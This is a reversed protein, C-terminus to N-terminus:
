RSSNTGRRAAPLSSQSFGPLHRLFLSVEGDGSPESGMGGPHPGQLGERGRPSSNFGLHFPPVADLGLPSVVSARWCAIFGIFPLSTGALAVFRHLRIAKLQASPPEPQINPVIEEGFLQQASACSGVPHPTVRGPHELVVSIHCHPVSHAHHPPQCNSKTTKTAKELRFSARLVVAATTNVKLVEIM